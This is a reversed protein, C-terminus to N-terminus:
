GEQGEELPSEEMMQVEECPLTFVISDDNNLDIFIQLLKTVKDNYENQLTVSKSFISVADDFYQMLRNPPIQEGNSIQGLLRNLISHTAEKEAREMKAPYNLKRDEKDKFDINKILNQTFDVAVPENKSYIKHLETWKITKGNKKDECEIENLSFDEFDKFGDLLKKNPCIVKFYTYEGDTLIHGFCKLNYEYEMNKFEAQAMRTKVNNEAADSIRVNDDRKIVGIAIQDVLFAIEEALLRRYERNVIKSLKQRAKSIADEVERFDTTKIRYGTIIM